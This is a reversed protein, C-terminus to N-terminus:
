IYLKRSVHFVLKLKSNECEETFWALICCCLVQGRAGVGLSHSHSASLRKGVERVIYTGQVYTNLVSNKLYAYLISIVRDDM